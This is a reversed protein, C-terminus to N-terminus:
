GGLEERARQYALNLEVAREHDGGNDPHNAQMLSYYARRAKGLSCAENLGLIERWSKPPPLANFGTFARELIQAGGHREIARMADMTAAVAALNDAVRDYIDIAMVKMEGNRTRWYVAVGPDQPEGQGSRPFGDRRLVVNTSIVVDDARVNMRRLEAITRETADAMSVSKASRFGGQEWNPTSNRKTSFLARKRSRSRPWGEPWQLPFRPIM